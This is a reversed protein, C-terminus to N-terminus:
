GDTAVTFAPRQRPRTGTLASGGHHARPRENQPDQVPQDNGQQGHSEDKHVPRIAEQVQRM